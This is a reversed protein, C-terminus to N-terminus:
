NGLYGNRRADNKVSKLIMNLQYLTSDTVFAPTRVNYKKSIEYIQKKTELCKSYNDNGLAM